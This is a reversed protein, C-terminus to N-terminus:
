AKGRRSHWINVSILASGLVIFVIGRSLISFDDNFFKVMLLSMIILLGFNLQSAKDNKVGIFLYWCGIAFAAISFAIAGYVTFLGYRESEVPLILSYAFLLILVSPLVLDAFQRRFVKYLILGVCVTNIRDRICMESGM